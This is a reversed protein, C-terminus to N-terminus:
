DLWIQSTCVCAGQETRFMCVCLSHSIDGWALDWINSLYVCMGEAFSQSFNVLYCCLGRLCGGIISMEPKKSGKGLMESRLTRVYVDVLRGSHGVMLEPYVECLTGLLQYIGGRVVAHSDLYPFPIIPICYICSHSLYQVLTVNGVHALFALHIKSVQLQTKQSKHLQKSFDAFTPLHLILSTNLFAFRFSYSM